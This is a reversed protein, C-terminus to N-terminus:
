DENETCADRDSVDQTTPCAVQEKCFGQDASDCQPVALASLWFITIDPGRWLVWDCDAGAISAVLGRRRNPHRLACRCRLMKDHDDGAVLDACEM